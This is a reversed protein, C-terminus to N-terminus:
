LGELYPLPDEVCFDPHEIVLRRLIPIHGAGFLVFIRADPETAIRTLNAFIRLNRKFWEAVMDAGAYEEGRVVPVFFEIYPMHTKAIMEPTNMRALTQGVSGEALWAAMTAIAEEGVAQMGGLLQALRPDQAAM